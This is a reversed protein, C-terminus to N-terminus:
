ELKENNSNLIIQENLPKKNKKSDNKRLLEKFFNFKDTQSENLILEAFIYLKRFFVDDGDKFDKNKENFHM